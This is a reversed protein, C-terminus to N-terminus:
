VYMRDYSVSVKIYPTPVFVMWSLMFPSELLIYTEEFIYLGVVSLSGNKLPKFCKFVMTQFNNSLFYKMSLLNLTVYKWPYM